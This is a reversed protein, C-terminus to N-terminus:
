RELIARLKWRAEFLRSKVTSLPLSFHEMLEEYSCDNAYKHVLLEQEASALQQLADALNLRDVLRCEFGPSKM